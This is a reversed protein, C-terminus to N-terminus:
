HNKNNGTFVNLLEVWNSFRYNHKLHQNYDQNAIMVKRNAAILNIIQYDADEIFVDVDEVKQKNPECIIEGFWINHKILWDVTEEQYKRNRATVYKIDYDLALQQLTKTAENFITLDSYLGQEEAEHFNNLFEEENKFWGCKIFDYFERNNLLNEPYKKVNIIYNKFGGDFDAITNDIDVGLIKKM